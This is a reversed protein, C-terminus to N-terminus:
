DFPKEHSRRKRVSRFQICRGGSLNEYGSGERWYASEKGLIAMLCERVFSADEIRIWFYFFYGFGAHTGPKTRGQQSLAVWLNRIALLAEDTFNWGSCWCDGQVHAYKRKPTVTFYSVDMENAATYATDMDRVGSMDWIMVPM